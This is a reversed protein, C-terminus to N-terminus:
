VAQVSKKKKSKKGKSPVAGRKQTSRSSASGARQLGDQVTRVALM